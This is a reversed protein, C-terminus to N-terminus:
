SVVVLRVKEQHEGIIACFAVEVFAYPWHPRVCIGGIPTNGKCIGLSQYCRDQIREMPMNPLQRWFIDTLANLQSLYV